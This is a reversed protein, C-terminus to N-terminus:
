GMLGKSICLINNFMGHLATMIRDIKECINVFSVWLEGTLDLYPTDKTSGANSQYEAQTEAIM